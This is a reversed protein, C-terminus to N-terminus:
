QEEEPGLDGTWCDEIRETETPYLLAREWAREIAEIQEQSQPAAAPLIADLDDLLHRMKSWICGCGLETCIGRAHMEDVAERLSRRCAELYENEHRM